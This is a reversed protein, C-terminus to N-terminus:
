RRESRYQYFFTLDGEILDYDLEVSHHACCAVMATGSVLSNGGAVMKGRRLRAFLAWQVGFGLVLLSMWPQLNLFQRLPYGADKTLLLLVLYYFGTLGLSALLGAAIM